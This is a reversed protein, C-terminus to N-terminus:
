QPYSKTNVKPWDGRVDVNLERPPHHMFKTMGHSDIHDAFNPTNAQIQIRAGKSQGQVNGSFGETPVKHGMMEVARHKAGLHATVQNFPRQISM